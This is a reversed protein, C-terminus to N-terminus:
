RLASAVEGDRRASAVDPANLLALKRAVLADFDARQDRAVTAARPVNIRRPDTYKGNRYMAFHLHPGTARGTSGVYGIVQGQRVRRGPKIGSAFGKLHLYATSYVSNHRIKLWKGNVADRKRVIVKGDGIAMVPTGPPAAYDVGYHPQVRGTVPHLRRRTFGSSIRRFRLPAKLFQKRLSGGKDDFYDTRGNGAQFSFAQFSQGRNIFRAASINGYKVFDGDRFYKDVVVRFTDGKRLDRFFDVQWAFIDAIELALSPHEGIEEVTAFLSEEITGSLVVTKVQYPIPVVEVRPPEEALLIKLIRRDDPEYQYETVEGDQSILRYRRGAVLRSPSVGGVRSSGVALISAESLGAERLIGYLTDGGRVLHDNVTVVPAAPRAVKMPALPSDVAAAERIPLGSYIDAAKVAAYVCLVGALALLYVRRPRLQGGASPRAAGSVPSFDGPGSRVGM